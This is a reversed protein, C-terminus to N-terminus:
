SRRMLFVALAGTTMFVLTAVLSRLSGRGIGCIGHGSTCGGGVRTGVGVAVGAAFLWPLGPLHQLVFRDPLVFLWLAGSALGALFALRWALDAPAAGLVGGLIGSVGALRQNVALLWAAALGILAGGSLATWADVNM